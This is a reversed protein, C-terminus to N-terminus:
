CSVFSCNSTSWSTYTNAIDFPFRLCMEGGDVDFFCARLEEGENGGFLKLFTALLTGDVIRAFSFGVLKTRKM